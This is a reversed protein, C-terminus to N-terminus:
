GHRDKKKASPLDDGCVGLGLMLIEIRQMWNNAKHEHKDMRGSLKDELEELECALTEIRKSDASVQWRMAGAHLMAGCLLMIAAVVATDQFTYAEALMM